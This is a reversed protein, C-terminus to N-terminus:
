HESVRDANPLTLCSPLQDGRPGAPAGPRVWCSDRSQLSHMSCAGTAGEPQSPRSSPELRSCLRSRQSGQFSQGTTMKRRWTEHFRPVFRPMNGQLPEQTARGIAESLEQELM